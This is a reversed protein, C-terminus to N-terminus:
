DLFPVLSSNRETIPFQAWFIHSSLGLAKCIATCPSSTKLLCSLLKSMGLSARDHRSSQPFLKRMEFGVEEQLCTSTGANRCPCTGLGLAACNRVDKSGEWRPVRPEWPLWPCNTMSLVVFLGRDTPELCCTISDSSTVLIYTWFSQQSGM